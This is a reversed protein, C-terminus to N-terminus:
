KLNFVKNKFAILYPNDNTKFNEDYNSEKIHSVVEDVYNRKQQEDGFLNNRLTTRVFLEANDKWIGEISDYRWFRKYKDYVFNNNKELEESFPVPSFKSMVVVQRNIGHEQLGTVGKVDKEDKDYTTRVATIRSNLEEDGCDLCINTVVSIASSLGLRKEKRLYGAVSM